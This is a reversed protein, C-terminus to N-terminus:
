RTLARKIQESLHLESIFLFKGEEAKSCSASCPASHHQVQLRLTEAWLAAQTPFTDWQGPVVGCGGRSVCLRVGLTRSIASSFSCCVAGPGM